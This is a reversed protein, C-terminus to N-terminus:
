REEKVRERIADEIVDALGPFPKLYEHNRFRILADEIDEATRAAYLDTRFSAMVGSALVLDYTLGAVM